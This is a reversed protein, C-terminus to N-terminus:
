QQRKRQKKVVVPKMVKILNYVEPIELMEPAYKEIETHKDYDLLLAKELLRMAEKLCGAHFRYGALRYVLLSEHPHSRIAKNLIAMASDADENISLLEAYDLWVNPNKYDSRIVKEFAAVADAFRKAKAYLEALVYLFEMNDKELALAKEVSRIASNIQGLEDYAVGMELWADSLNPDIEVAKIYSDISDPFLLLKQYCEGLYYYTSAEPGEYIFTQRYAEIAERYMGMNAYSNAKNFYASAFSEEIAIAFDYAEVAKEYLELINYTLGLNFWSSVSYPNKDIFNNFFAIAEEHKNLLEYCFAIEYIAVENEPNIELSKKFYEIAKDYHGHNEFEAAIGMCIEDPYDAQQLAKEFEEVAKHLMKKLSYITGRTMFVDLNNPDMSELEELIQMAEDTQKKDILFQAKWLLVSSATPHQALAFDLAQKVHTKDDIQFYYEIIDELDELDFFYYSGDKIMKEFRNVLELIEDFELEEFEENMLQDYRRNIIKCFYYFLLPAQKPLSINKEAGFARFGITQQDVICVQVGQRWLM